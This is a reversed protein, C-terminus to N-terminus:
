LMGKRAAWVVVQVANPVGVRDCLARTRRRVTRESIRLRRAIRDTTLGEALLRILEIEQDDLWTASEAM